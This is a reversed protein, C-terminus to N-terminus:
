GAVSPGFSLYQESLSETSKSRPLLKAPPPAPRFTAEAHALRSLSLRQQGVFMVGRLPRGVPLGKRSPSLHPQVSRGPDYEVRSRSPRLARGPVLAM